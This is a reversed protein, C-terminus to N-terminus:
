IQLVAEPETSYRNEIAGMIEVRHTPTKEGCWDGM